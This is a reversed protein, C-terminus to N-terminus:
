RRDLRLWSFTQRHKQEFADIMDARQLTLAIDSLGELLCRKAFSDVDFGHEAGQTDVVVQRPLDISLTAGPAAHLQGRLAATTEAPLRIALIGNKLCNNFFVDGFSVAIIARVGFDYHTYVAGLRSSGCGYNYSAVFIPARRYVPRNLIFNKATGDAEFRLDHLLYGGYADGERPKRMLRAPIIQDTNVDDMDIPVAVATLHTFKDMMGEDM